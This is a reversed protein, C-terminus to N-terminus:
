RFIRFRMETTKLFLKTVHQHDITIQSTCNQLYSRVDDKPVSKTKNYLVSLMKTSFHLACLLSLNCPMKPIFRIIQGIIIPFHDCAVSDDGSLKIPLSELAFDVLVMAKRQHQERKIFTEYDYEEDRPFEKDIIQQLCRWIRHPEIQSYFESAYKLLSSSAQKTRNSKALYLYDILSTNLKEFLESRRIDNRVMLQQFIRVPQDLLFDPINNKLSNSLSSHLIKFTSEKLDNLGDINNSGLM